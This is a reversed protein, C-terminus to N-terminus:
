KPPVRKSSAPHQKTDPGPNGNKRSIYAIFSWIIFNLFATGLWLPIFWFIRDFFGIDLSPSFSLVLWTVNGWITAICTECLLFPKAIWSPVFGRQVLGDLWKFLPELLGKPQGAATIGGCVLVASLLLFLFKEM